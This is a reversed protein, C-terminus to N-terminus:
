SFKGEEEMAPLVFCLCLRSVIMDFLGKQSSKINIIVAGTLAPPPFASLLQHLLPCIAMECEWHKCLMWFHFVFHFKVEEDELEGLTRRLYHKCCVSQTWYSSNSVDWKPSFDLVSFLCWQQKWAMETATLVPSQAPATSWPAAWIQVDLLSACLQWYVM